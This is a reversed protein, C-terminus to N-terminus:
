IELLKKQILELTLLNSIETTYNGLGRTHRNVMKELYAKNLWPRQLAADALLMDKVYGSLEDRYWVRFHYFKHRGLFMRELHLFKFLYDIKAMGQPMGYNSFYELKFILEQYVRPLLSVAFPLTMSIGRDTLIGALDRGGERILRKSILDDMLVDIPARYLLFALDSDLFPNRLVLQSCEVVQRNCQLWPNEKLLTFTLPNNEDIVAFRAKSEMATDAFSASLMRLNPHYFNLVRSHRLLEGGYTGAIRIPAIQRALSNIYIETSTGVDLNGDSVFVTKEAHDAFDRLFEEGVEIVQHSQGCAEAVKRAIKVDRSERYKGGFTYCPYKGPPTDVNALIMRTDLGGTLSIGIEQEARFYRPLIKSFIERLEDYFQDPALKPQSEWEEPDFYVRRKELSEHKFTWASSGPLLFIGKFLTRWELVCNCTLYEGLGQYDFERLEPKVKLIAKAESSFYFADKDEHYYMRQMGYRDNFLLLKKERLDIIIGHFLGNLDELFAVGKEEYLHILYGANRRDYGHNKGALLKQNELNSNDEGSFLLVLDKTENFIPLCDCFSNEHCTWGGYFGMSKEIWTGTTYFSEHLMTGQMAKLENEYGSNPNKTIIGFIGPM